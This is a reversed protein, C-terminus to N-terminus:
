RYEHPVVKPIRVTVDGKVIAQCALRSDLTCGPVEQIHDQEDDTPESLNETGQEVIVHCTGCVGVGGCAHDIEVGHHLAVDLISGPEGERGYPYLDPDAMVTVGSPQFTVKHKPM